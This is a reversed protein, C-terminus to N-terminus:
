MKLFLFFVFLFCCFFFFVVIGEYTEKFVVCSDFCEIFDVLSTVSITFFVCWFHMVSVLFCVLYFMSYTLFFTLCNVRGRSAEAFKPENKKPPPPPQINKQGWRGEGSNWLNLERVNLLTIRLLAMLVCNGEGTVGPVHLHSKHENTQFHM